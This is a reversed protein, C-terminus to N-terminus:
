NANVRKRVFVIPIIETTAVDWMGTIEHSLDLYKQRKETEARVLGDNNNNRNIKQVILTTHLFKFQFKRTRFCYKGLFVAKSLM